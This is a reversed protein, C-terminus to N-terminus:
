GTKMLIQKWIIIEDFLIWENKIGRPGFEAHSIGMIYVSANSPTGFNGNGSHPGILSWRIAAKKAQNKEDTFSIHEITFKSDPFTSLLMNWFNTVEETGNGIFGGPQAQQIARDYNKEVANLDKNFIKKLIDAYRTGTNEKSITPAKYVGEIPVNITTNENYPIICKNIGGEDNILKGM